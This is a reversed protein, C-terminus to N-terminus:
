RIKSPMETSSAPLLMIEVDVDGVTLRTEIGDFIQGLEAIRPGLGVGNEPGSRHLPVNGADDIDGVGARRQPQRRIDESEINIGFAAPGTLCIVPADVNGIDGSM